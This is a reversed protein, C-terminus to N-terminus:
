RKILKGTSIIKGDIAQIRYFYAGAGPKNFDIRNVTNNLKTTMMKRGSIDCLEFNSNVNKSEITVTLNNIFPNPYIKIQPIAEPVDKLKSTVLEITRVGGSMLENEGFTCFITDSTFRTEQLSFYTKYLQRISDFITATDLYCITWKESVLRPISDIKTIEALTDAIAILENLNILRLENYKWENKETNVIIMISGDGNVTPQHNRKAPNAAAPLEEITEFKDGLSKRTYKIMTQEINSGFETIGVPSKSGFTEYSTYYSLGDKSFQGPTLLGISHTLTGTQTFEKENIKKYVFTVDKNQLSDKLIILENGDPSIAPAFKFGTVLGKVMEPKSFDSKIDKRKSVYIEGYKALYMTLEDGTLTSCYFGDIINKSLIAPENFNENVSNRSCFYIRGFGGERDTTFYLRLGDASLFPYAECTDKMNILSSFDRELQRRGPEQLAQSRINNTLSLLVFCIMLKTTLSSSNRM